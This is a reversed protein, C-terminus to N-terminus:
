KQQRGPKDSPERRRWYRGSMSWVIDGGSLEQFAEVVAPRLFPVGEDDYGVHPAGHMRDVEDAAAASYLRGRRELEGLMWAAIAQPSGNTAM